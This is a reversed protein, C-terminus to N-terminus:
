SYDKAQVIWINFLRIHKNKCVGGMPLDETGMASWLLRGFPPGNSIVKINIQKKVASFMFGWLPM